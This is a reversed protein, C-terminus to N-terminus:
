DFLEYKKHEAASRKPVPAHPREIRRQALRCQSMRLDFGVGVRGLRECVSVTTGSGSFPDLCTGGPPCFSKVFFEALAEPFPAENAHAAAHGIRAGNGTSIFNGPNSLDPIPRFRDSSDRSGDRNRRTLVGFARVREGNKTRNSMPGGPGCKPPHGCATNDAYPLKAVSKFALVYEVDKRFWQDGGSGPIGSRHWYCPCECLWGRKWGEWLLGECAPWYNRDRTVGACVWLVVGRSVRLAEATVQLMWEVWEPADLSIGLNVGDELYLRADCYPPSGFVMDVSADPLPLRAADAQALLWNM